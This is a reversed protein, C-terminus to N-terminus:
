KCYPCTTKNLTRDKVAEYWSHGNKCKWMLASPSKFGIRNILKTVGTNLDIGTWEMDIQKGFDGNEEIWKKLTKTDANDIEKCNPCDGRLKHTRGALDYDWEYGCRKCKWHVKVKSTKYLNYVNLEKGDADFGTWEESLRKARTDGSNFWNALSHVCVKCPEENNEIIKVMDNVSKIFEHGHKCIWILENKSNYAISDIEVTKNTSVNDGTYYGQLRQSKETTQNLCWDLLTNKFGTKRGSCFPCMSRTTKKAGNYTNRTRLYPSTYFKHGKSCIWLMNTKNGPLVESPKLFIDAFKGTFESLLLKGYEGHSNCWDEFSQKDETNIYAECSKCTCGNLVRNILSSVYTHQNKCIFYYKDSTDININTDKNIVTSSLRLTPSSTDEKQGTFESLMDEGYKGTLKIFDTLKTSKTISINFKNNINEIASNVYEQEHKEAKCYPCEDDFDNSYYSHGNSCTLETKIDIVDKRAGYTTRFENHCIKCNCKCKIHNNVGSTTTHDFCCKWMVKDYTYRGTEKLSIINGQPDRGIWEHLVKEALVRNYGTAKGTMCWEYLSVTRRM